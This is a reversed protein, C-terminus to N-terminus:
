RVLFKLSSISILLFTLTIIFLIIIDPFILSLNFGLFGNRVINCNYTLPNFMAVSKLVLPAQDLNYYISSAFTVPFAIMSFIFDRTEEKLIFIGCIFGISYWISSGMVIAVTILLISNVDSPLIIGFIFYAIISLILLRVVTLLINALLKGSYYSFLNTKSIAISRIVNSVEDIRVSSFTKNFVFYIQLTLIGPLLYIVYQVMKGQYPVLNNNISFITAFFIFILVPSVFYTIFKYFNYFEIKIERWFVPGINM